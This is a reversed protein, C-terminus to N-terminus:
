ETFFFVTLLFVFGSWTGTSCRGSSLFTATVSPVSVNRSTVSIQLTVEALRSVRSICGSCCFAALAEVSLNAAITNSWHCVWCWNCCLRLLVSLCCIWVPFIHGLALSTYYLWSSFLFACSPLHCQRLFVLRHVVTSEAALCCPLRPKSIFCCPSTRLTLPSPFPQSIRGLLRPATVWVNEEAKVSGSFFFDTQLSTSFSHCFM